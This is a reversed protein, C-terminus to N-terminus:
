QPRAQTFSGVDDGNRTNRWKNFFTRDWGNKPHPFYRQAIKALAARVDSDLTHRQSGDKLLKNGFIWMRKSIKTQLQYGAVAGVPCVPLDAVAKLFTVELEDVDIRYVSRHIEPAKSKTDHRPNQEVSPPPPDLNVPFSTNAAVELAKTLVQADEKPTIPGNQEQTMLAELTDAVFDRQLNYLASAMTIPDPRTSLMGAFAGLTQQAWTKIQGVANFVAEVTLTPYNAISVGFSWPALAASM